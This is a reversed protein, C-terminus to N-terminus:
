GPAPSQDQDAGAEHALASTLKALANERGVRLINSKALELLGLAEISTMGSIAIELIDEAFSLKVSNPQDM